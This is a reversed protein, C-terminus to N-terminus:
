TAVPSHNEGEAPCRSCYAFGFSCRDTMATSRIQGSQPPIMPAVSVSASPRPGHVHRRSLPRTFPDDFSKDDSVTEMGTGGAACVGALGSIELSEAVAVESDAAFNQM